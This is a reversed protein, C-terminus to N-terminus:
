AQKLMDEKLKDYNKEITELTVNNDIERTKALTNFTFFCYQMTMILGPIGAKWGGNIIYYKLFMKIPRAILHKVKIKKGKEVNHKAEVDSYVSHNQEYKSINYTSFHFLAYDDVLPLELIEENKCVINGFGHIKNGKFDISGKKFYRYQIANELYLDKVGYHVNRRQFKIIKYKSGTSVEVMKELLGPAAIEDAYGWYVWETDVKSLIREVEHEEEGWGMENKRQFVNAQYKKAIEVTKDTSFNDVILIKGYAQFRRLVYEIRREENFTFIVFTIKEM